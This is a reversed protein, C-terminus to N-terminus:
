LGSAAGQSPAPKPEPTGAPSKAVDRRPVIRCVRKPTISGIVEETRCVKRPKVAPSAPTAPGAQSAEAPGSAAALFALAVSVFM